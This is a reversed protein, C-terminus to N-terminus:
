AFNWSCESLFEALSHAALDSDRKLNLVQQWRARHLGMQRVLNAVSFSGDARLARNFDISFSTEASDSVVRVCYFPLSRESALEALAAAEMDVAHAGTAALQRKEEASQVVHDVTLLTGRRFSGISSGPLCGSYEVNGDTIRDAVFLDGVSFGPDLAGVFGVSVLTDVSGADIIARAAASAPGRGVGNAVFTSAVGNLKGEALSRVYRERRFELGDFGSFERRDAAVLLLLKRDDCQYPRSIPRGM